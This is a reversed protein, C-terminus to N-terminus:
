FAPHLYINREKLLDFLICEHLQVTIKHSNSSNIKEHFNLIYFFVIKKPCQLEDCLVYPMFFGASM